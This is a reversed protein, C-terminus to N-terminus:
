VEFQEQFGTCSIEQEPSSMEAIVTKLLQAAVSTDGCTLHDNLADHIFAYQEQTHSHWIIDSCLITFMLM